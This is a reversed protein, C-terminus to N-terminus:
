NLSPSRPQTSKIRLCDPTGIRESYRYGYDCYERTGMGLAELLSLRSYHFLARIVLFTELFFMWYRSRRIILRLFASKSRHSAVVKIFAHLYHLSFIYSSSLARKNSASISAYQLNAVWPIGDDMIDTDMAAYDMRRCIM